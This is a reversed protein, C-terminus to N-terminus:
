AIGSTLINIGKNRLADTVSAVTHGAGLTIANSDFDGSIYAVTVTDASTANTDEALICDPYQSADPATAVSLLLKEPVAPVTIAFSDGIAFDTSGDAITFNVENVFAVAVTANGILKGNPDEVKFTGADTAATICTARYVGLKARTGVTLSGITGNGTNGAKAAGAITGATVTKGLLAGRTRNEGSLLTIQKSIVEDGANLHDPTLTSTEYSAPM